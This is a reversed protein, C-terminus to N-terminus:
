NKSKRHLFNKENHPKNLDKNLHRMREPSLNKSGDFPVEVEEGNVKVSTVWNGDKLWVPSKPDEHQIEEEVPVEERIM